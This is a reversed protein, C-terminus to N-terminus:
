LTAHVRSITIPRTKFKFLASLVLYLIESLLTLLFWYHYKKTTVRWELLYLGNLLCLDILYPPDSPCLFRKTRPQKCSFAIVYTTNGDLAKTKWHERRELTNIPIGLIHVIFCWPCRSDMFTVVEDDIWRYCGSRFYTFIVGRETTQSCFPGRISESLRMWFSWSGEVKSWYSRIRSM